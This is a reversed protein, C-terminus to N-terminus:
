RRYPDTQVLRKLEDFWNLVGHGNGQGLGGEVGGAALCM